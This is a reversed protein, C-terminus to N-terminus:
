PCGKPLPDFEIPQARLADKTAADLYFVVPLKCVGDLTLGQELFWNTALSKAQEYNTTRLEIHFVNAAKIYEIQYDSNQVLIGSKNGLSQIIKVRAAQDNAELTPRSAIIELLRKSQDSSYDIAPKTVPSPQTKSVSAKPIEPLPAQQTSPPRTTLLIIPLAIFIGVVLILILIRRNMTLAWSEPRM